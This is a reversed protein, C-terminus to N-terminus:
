QKIAARLFSYDVVDARSVPKTAGVMAKAEDISNKLLAKIGLDARITVYLLDIGENRYFGREIGYLLPGISLSVRTTHSVVVREQADATSILAFLFVGIAVASIARPM